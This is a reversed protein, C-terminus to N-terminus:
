DLSMLKEDEVSAIVELAWNENEVEGSYNGNRL